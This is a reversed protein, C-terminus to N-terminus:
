SFAASAAAASCARQLLAVSVLVGSRARRFDHTGMTLLLTAFSDDLARPRPIPKWPFPASCEKLICAPSLEAPQGSPPGWSTEGRGLGVRPWTWIM